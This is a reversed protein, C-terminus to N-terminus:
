ELKDNQRTQRVLFAGVVDGADFTVGYDSFENEKVAKGSSEYSYSHKDEGLQLSASAISWGIRIFHTPLPPEEVKDKKDKDDKEKDDKDDKEKDDKDDKEKDDENDKDDKKDKADDKKDKDDETKDEDEMKDKDDDKKEGNEEVKKEAVEATDM